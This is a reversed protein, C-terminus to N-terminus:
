FGFAGKQNTSCFTTGAWTNDQNKPLFLSQYVSSKKYEAEEKKEKEKEKEEHGVKVKKEKGGEKGKEGKKRKRSGEKGKKAAKKQEEM